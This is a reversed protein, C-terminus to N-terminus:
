REPQNPDLFLRELIRRKLEPPAGLAQSRAELFKLFTEEFGFRSTCPVCAALHHRIQIEVQPTLERDLYEYLHNLAEHCTMARPESTM